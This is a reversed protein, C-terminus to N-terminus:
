GKKSWRGQNKLRKWDKFKRGSRTGAQVPKQPFVSRCMPCPWHNGSPVNGTKVKGRSLKDSKTLVFLTKRGYYDLWAKLALDEESPERRIDLIFVVLQLCQRERLYTEIMPGWERKVAEPVRAFGYGPLDVFMLGQNIAFFNIIQTRGPTNSTRALRKRQVLTNILSSKGVNSRGVFAVEPLNGQPYGSPATASKIFEVSVIKM